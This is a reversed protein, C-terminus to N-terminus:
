RLWIVLQTPNGRDGCTQTPVVTGIDGLVACSTLASPTDVPGGSNYWLASGHLLDYCHLNSFACLLVEAAPAKLPPLRKRYQAIFRFRIAAIRATNPKRPIQQVQCRGVRVCAGAAANRAATPASSRVSWREISSWRYGHRLSLCPPQLLHRQSRPNLFRWSM